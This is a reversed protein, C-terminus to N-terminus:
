SRKITMVRDTVWLRFRPDGMLNNGGFLGSGIIFNGGETKIRLGGDEKVKMCATQCGGQIFNKVMVKNSFTITTLFLEKMLCQFIPVGVPNSLEGFDLENKMMGGRGMKQGFKRKGMERIKGIEFIRM